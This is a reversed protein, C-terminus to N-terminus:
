AVLIYTFNCGQLVLTQLISNSINVTVGSFANNVLLDLKGDNETNIREFVKKVQEDDTHDCEVPVCTGTGGM